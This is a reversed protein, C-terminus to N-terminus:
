FPIEDDFEDNSLPTDKFDEDLIEDDNVVGFSSTDGLAHKAPDGKAFQLANLYVTSRVVAGRPVSVNLTLEANVCCGSFFLTNPITIAKDEKDKLILPVFKKSFDKPFAKKKVKLQWYKDIATDHQGEANVILAADMLNAQSNIKNGENDTLFRYTRSNLHNLKHKEYSDSDLSKDRLLVENKVAEADAKKLIELYQMHVPITKNFLLNIRQEWKDLTVDSPIDKPLNAQWKAVIEELEVGSYAFEWPAYPANYFKGTQKSYASVTFINHYYLRVQKISIKIPKNKKTDTM